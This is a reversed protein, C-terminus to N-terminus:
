VGPLQNTAAVGAYWLGSDKPTRVQTDYDVHIIGFRNHYGFAWEFNDLLSWVFYGRVDVGDNIADNIARLHLDIYRRRDSDHIAGDPTVVDDYAAGNETIYIPPVAYEDRVRELLRTLAEPRVEWDMATTPLGRRPFVIEEGGPFPSAAPRTAHPVGAGLLDEHPRGSAGQPSYYNVGLADLPRSILDLDGDRIWDQWPRDQYTMGETDTALDDAYRGNFLPELFLRNFFGDVRRAADVDAEEAPDFAEATTLNLTIGVQKGNEPTAGLGRLEDVAMGHALLLHHAAILGAVGEQRGPAKRGATYGLLSSCYPENLTTWYQVRDGLADYVTTAYEVFRHATDRNLWGGKDELAQPLDWHYLTVWPVIGAELLEDVLASYFDIGKQNVAAGDPRVRPWATSFRYSGLNLRKMLAVDEPMRHYHDCAVDGTDGNLIAGPLRSYVDWISPTRGDEDVAGEIQYSATAAGWLFGDPFRVTQPTAPSTQMTM